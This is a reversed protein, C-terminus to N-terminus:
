GTYRLADVVIREELLYGFVRQAGRERVGDILVIPVLFLKTALAQAREFQEVVTTRNPAVPDSELFRLYLGAARSIQAPKSPPFSSSGSSASRM